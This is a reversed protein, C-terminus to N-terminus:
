YLWMRKGRLDVHVFGKKSGKGFGGNWKGANYWEAEFRRELEGIDGNLPRFDVAYGNPHNPASSGIRKNVHWPRYWSNVGLPGGWWERIDDMKRAIAIINKKIQTDTPIRERSMNTVEGVTFYKSVPSSWDHWNIDDWMPLVVPPETIVKQSELKWHEPWIYYEGVNLVDVKLHGHSNPKNLNDEDEDENEEIEVWLKVGAKEEIKGKNNPSDSQTLPDLKLATPHVCEILMVM